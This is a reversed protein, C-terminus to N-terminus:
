RRGPLPIVNDGVTELRRLLRHNDDQLQGIHLALVQIQNAYTKVQERLERIQSTHQSRLAKDVYKLDKVQQRLAELEPRPAAPDNILRKVQEALPSRYFSARSIGAETCLNTITLQGDTIEPRGQTLRQLGAQIKQDISM